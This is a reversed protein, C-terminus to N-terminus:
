NKKSAKNELIKRIIKRKQDQKKKKDETNSVMNSFIIWAANIYWKLNKVHKIKSLLRLIRSLNFFYARNMDQVALETLENPLQDMEFTPVIFNYFTDKENIDVLFHGKKKIIEFMKTGPFPTAKFFHAIDLDLDLAFKKTEVLTHINDQPLGVIFFGRVFPFNIKKLIKRAKVVKKLDLNKGIRYVIDQNGSEIGLAVDYAGAKLLKWALRPTLKDARIGNYFAMSIKFDLKIIEDCLHEAREIDYNFNDDTFIIEDMHFNKRLYKLEEIVNEVSRMRIKYGHVIKTCHICGLPCGRSTSIPYFFKGRANNFYKKPPPFLEWAPFPLSDLDQILARNKTRIVEKNEIFAIGDVSSLDEGTAIVNLLEKVTIEGEGIVVIDGADNELLYKYEATAWPGGYIVIKEPYRKHFWKGTLFIKRAFAVNGTIGIVDPNFKKIRKNLEHINLREATADFVKVDHGSEKIVAAIMALGLSQQFSSKLIFFNDLYNPFILAIKM